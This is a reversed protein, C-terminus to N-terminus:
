KKPSGFTVILGISAYNLWISSYSEEVDAGGQLVRYGTKISFTDNFRYGIGAFVDFAQGVSVYAADAESIILFRGKPNWQLYYNILPVFGLNPKNNSIGGTTFVVDAERIFATLGLGFRIRENRVLDYRYTLRYNNFQYSSKLNSGAVFTTGRFEINRNIVGESTITQPSYLISITHRDNITYGARVRFYWTRNITLENALDISTGTERPIRVINYPSSFIAGSEVDLKLQAQVLQASLLALILIPTKAFHAPSVMFKICKKMLKKKCFSYPLM